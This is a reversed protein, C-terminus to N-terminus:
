LKIERYFLFIDELKKKINNLEFVKSHNKRHIIKKVYM